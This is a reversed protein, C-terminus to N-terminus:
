NTQATPLNDLVRQYKQVLEDNGKQLENGASIEVIWLQEGDGSVIGGTVVTGDTLGDPIASIDPTYGTDTSLTIKMRCSYPIEILEDTDESESEFTECCKSLRNGNVDYIDINVTTHANKTFSFSACQKVKEMYVKIHFAGESLPDNLYVSPDFIIEVDQRSNLQAIQEATFETKGIEVKVFKGSYRVGDETRDLFHPTFILKRGEVATTYNSALYGVEPNVNDDFAYPESEPPIEQPTATGNSINMFYTKHGENETVSDADNLNFTVPTDSIRYLYNENKDKIKMVTYCTYFSKKTNENNPM